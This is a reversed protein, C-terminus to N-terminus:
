APSILFEDLSQGAELAEVLWRPKLGRGSWSAGDAPNRYMAVVKGGARVVAMEFAREGVVQGPLGEENLGLRYADALPKQLPDAAGDEVQDPQADAAPTPASSAGDPEGATPAADLRGAPEGPQAAAPEQASAPGGDLVTVPDAPADEFMDPVRPDREHQLAPAPAAGLTVRMANVPPEGLDDAGADEVRTGASLLDILDDQTAVEATYDSRVVHRLAAAVNVARVLRTTGTSPHNIAYVRRPTQPKTTTM